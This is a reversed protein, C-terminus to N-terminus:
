GQEITRPIPSALVTDRLPSNTTIKSIYFFGSRNKFVSAQQEIESQDPSEITSSRECGLSGTNIKYSYDLFEKYEAGKLFLFSNISESGDVKDDRTLNFTAKYHDRFDGLSKGGRLIVSLDANAEEVYAPRQATLLLEEPMHFLRFHDPKTSSTLQLPQYGPSGQYPFLSPHDNTVKNEILTILNDILLAEKLICIADTICSEGDSQRTGSNLYFLTQADNFLKAEAFYGRTRSGSSSDFVVMHRVEDGQHILVPIAHNTGHM